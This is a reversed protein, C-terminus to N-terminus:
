AKMSKLYLYVGVIISIIALFAGVAIIWLSEEFFQEGREMADYYMYIVAALGLLGSGLVVFAASRNESRSSDLPDEEPMSPSIHNICYDNHEDGNITTFRTMKKPITM